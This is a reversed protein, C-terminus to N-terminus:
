NVFRGDRGPKTFFPTDRVVIIASMQPHINCYVRVIGPHQFTWAGTKPKKYLDLDFRNDGSVSFANHFISDDNPFKVTGGVPIALVHPVFTKDKMRIEAAVPKAQVKVGEIWVVAESVDSAQKGDKEVLQLRGVINGAECVIAGGLLAALLMTLHAFRRM